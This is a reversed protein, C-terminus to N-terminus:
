RNDKGQRATGGPHASDKLRPLEKVGDLYEKLGAGLLEKDMLPIIIPRGLEPDVLIRVDIGFVDRLLSEGLIESPKGCAVARGDKLVLIRDSYASALNLDHLVAVVSVGRLAMLRLVEMIEIQNRPDLHSTPEDVLIIRPRQALARALRVKQKEGSSLEGVRRGALGDVGMVRMSEWVIEEDERSEWWLGRMHPTRGASVVDYVTLSPQGEYESPIYSLTKALERPRIRELSRGDLYIAGHPKLLNALCRLLTTKGSGNPGIVGLVEGERIELSVDRIGGVGDYSWSVGEVRVVVRGM